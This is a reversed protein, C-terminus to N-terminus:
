DNEKVPEKERDEIDTKIEVKRVNNEESLICITNWHKTCHKGARPTGV